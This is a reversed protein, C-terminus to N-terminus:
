ALLLASRALRELSPTLAQELLPRAASGGLPRGEQEITLVGRDVLECLINLIGERDRNGDLRPLVLRDFDTLEVGRHRLNTVLGPGLAQLQALPSGRPRESVEVACRPMHVHAEVLGGQWCQLLAAALVARGDELHAYGPAEQTLRNRVRDWLDEFPVTSPWLDFLTALATKVLPDNTTVTPGDPAQFSEPASSGLDPEASVPKASATLQLTTLAEASAPRNLTVNDHCLLTKRFTRGRLFDFYQERHILGVPLQNLIRIVEPALASPLPSPEAEELYQLGHAAAREAFEHFYLPTNVDELHEHFLYSDAQPVLQSVQEDILRGYVNTSGEVANALLDLFARSQRVRTPADSFHRAHFSLMGRLLARMHWGPYTNYSIYAVGQPALNEKCIKLIKDQVEPPVWSYVGHCLIYDFRGFREDVDLISLAKLEINTLGLAQVMEVGEAVQSPSLDIGVFTSDPLTLAMPILNGGGACGLELVRCRPPPAPQMGLLTAVVALTDPHTAAFPRSDYPVEEYSALQVESM